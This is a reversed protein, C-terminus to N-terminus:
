SHLFTPSQSGVGAPATGRTVDQLLVVPGDLPPNVGALTEARKPSGPARKGAVIYDMHDAFALCKHFL